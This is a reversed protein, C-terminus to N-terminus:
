REGRTRRLVLNERGVLQEGLADSALVTGPRAVAVLRSALNVTPGYIDGQWALVPGSAMGVRVPPLQPDRALAKVLGLAIAAASAADDVSFMVEDGIMKIVRGGREPVHEYVLAEFHDVAAALEAPERRQSFATFNVLDAFGVVVEADGTESGATAARLAAAALHRRWVYTLLPEVRR